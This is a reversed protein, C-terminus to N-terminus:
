VFMYPPLSDEERSGYMNCLHLDLSFATLLFFFCSFSAILESWLWMCYFLALSLSFTDHRPLKNWVTIINLQCYICCTKNYVNSPKYESINSKTIELVQLTLAKLLLIVLHDSIRMEPTPTMNFQLTEEIGETRFTDISFQDGSLRRRKDDILRLNEYTDRFIFQKELANWSSYNLSSCIQPEGELFSNNESM